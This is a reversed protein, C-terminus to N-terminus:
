SKFSAAQRLRESNELARLLTKQILDDVGRDLKSRFFRCLSDFHRELLANGARDDGNRWAALLGADADENGESMERVYWQGISSM